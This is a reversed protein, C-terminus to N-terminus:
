TGEYLAQHDTNIEIKGVPENEIVNATTAKIYKFQQKM